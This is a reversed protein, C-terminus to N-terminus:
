RGVLFVTAAGGFIGQLAHCLDLWSVQQLPHRLEELFVVTFCVAPRNALRTALGALLEKCLVGLGRGLGIIGWGGIVLLVGFLLLFFGGEMKESVNGLGISQIISLWDQM